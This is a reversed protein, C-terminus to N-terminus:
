PWSTTGHHVSETNEAYRQLM